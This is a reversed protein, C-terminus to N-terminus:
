QASPTPLPALNRLEIERVQVASRAADVESAPILGAAFKAQALALLRQATELKGTAYGRSFRRLDDANGKAAEFEAGDILGANFRMQADELEREVELQGPWESHVPLPGPVVTQSAVAKPGSPASPSSAVPSVRLEAELGQWRDKGAEDQGILRRLDFLMFVSAAPDPGPRLTKGLYLKRAQQAAMEAKDADPLAFGFQFDGPGQARDSGQLVMRMKVDAITAVPALLGTLTSEAAGADQPPPAQGAATRSVLLAYYAPGSFNVTLLHAPFGPASVFRFVVVNGERRVEKVEISAYNGPVPPATWSMPQAVWGDHPGKRNLVLDAAAVLLVFGLFWGAALKWNSRRDAPEASKPFAESAPAFNVSPNSRGPSAAGAKFFREATEVFREFESARAFARQPVDVAMTPNLYIYAHAKDRVVREVAGWATFSQRFDSVEAIGESSLTVRQRCFQSRYKGTRLTRAISWRLLHPSAWRLLYVLLQGALSVALCVLMIRNLLPVPGGVIREIRVLLCLVAALSGILIWQDRGQLPWKIGFLVWGRRRRRETRMQIYHYLNFATFDEPTFDFEVTWEAAPASAFGPSKDSVPPHGAPMQPTSAAITEVRIKVESAQQWRRSPEKELARLVVEDLRVDLTVKRSPPALTKDPLEGTLMQYFVVGLAYIDARHDVEAPHSAQEPAMYSPTGMVKGAETLASPASAGDQSQNTSGTSSAVGVGSEGVLKALGFDAIKVRGRRDLLINEPKIDRHVIGFDHAYQLADCLEPVIALAERPAVRGGALLQRLNVGDVLEMVISFLGDATRGFDHITVIGPHNLRALARAERAFRDAFAPDDGLSRPLIKLAVLRDLERQRARYVAGMGGRGILEFIELQPFREALEAVTPPVLTASATAQGPTPEAGTPFGAKLLCEPCLGQPADPALPQRCTPCRPPPEM